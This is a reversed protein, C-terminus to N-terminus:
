QPRSFICYQIESADLWRFLVGRHKESDNVHLIIQRSWSNRSAGQIRTSSWCLFFVSKKRDPPDLLTNPSYSTTQNELIWLSPLARRLTWREDSLLNNEADFSYEEM